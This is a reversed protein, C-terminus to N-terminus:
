AATCHHSCQEKNMQKSTQMQTNNSLAAQSYRTVKVVALTCLQKVYSEFISIGFVISFLGLMQDIRLRILAISAM